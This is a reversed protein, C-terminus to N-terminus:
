GDIALTHVGAADALPEEIARCVSRQREEAQHDRGTGGRGYVIVQSPAPPTGDM